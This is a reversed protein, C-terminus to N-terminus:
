RGTSRLRKEELIIGADKDEYHYEETFNPFSIEESLESITMTNLRENLQECEDFSLKKTSIVKPSNTTTTTPSCSSKSNYNIHAYKKQSSAIVVNYVPSQFSNTNKLYVDYKQNENTNTFEIVDFSNNM